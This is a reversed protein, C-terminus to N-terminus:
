NAKKYWLIRRKRSEQWIEIYLLILFYKYWSKRALQFSCKELFTNYYYQNKDKNLVSKIDIIVHFTLM